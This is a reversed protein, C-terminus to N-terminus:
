DTLNKRLDKYHLVTKLHFHLIGSAQNSFLIREVTARVAVQLNGFDARNLLEVAGHRTGFRDFISGSIKTGVIHDLNFGNDQGVDAELLAEKLVSQWPLLDSRYVITEEVWHYAKYVMGLNWNIGSKPYFEKEARSYFGGNIMSSGGLIRGRANQIGDLSTFRQVPNKGDDQQRLNAGFQDARLVSPYALPDGGRELVLVSYNQSLTAALPCGATGGGVIIYDYDSFLPLDTANYVSKM